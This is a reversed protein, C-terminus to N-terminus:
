SSITGFYEECVTAWAHLIYKIYHFIAVSVFHVKLKPNPNLCMKDKLLNVTKKIWRDIQRDIQIYIYLYIYTYTYINMYINM